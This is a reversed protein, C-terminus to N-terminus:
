KMLNNFQEPTLIFGSAGKHGGGGYQKAIISCDVKGNDNYLSFAYSGGKTIHFCAFGDYSDKHYNIGFNVPNFREQNVCLFKRVKNHYDTPKEEFYIPFVRNYISKAEICLYKYISVGDNYIESMLDGNTTVRHELSHQLTYYAESHNSIRQRAGYQFELVTQEEPTGKHGFCDYRGLLRVIEPMKENPFFYMWTLECAAYKEPSVTVLGEIEYNSQEILCKNVEDIKNQHHDIWVFNTGFRNALKLMEDTPFSIDCMIVKDYNDLNPIDDGYNWGVFNVENHSNLIPIGILDGNIKFNYQKNTNNNNTNVNSYYKRVIAGSMWGDLDISHYLCIVKTNAKM